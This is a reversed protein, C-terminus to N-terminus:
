IFQLSTWTATTIKKALVKKNKNPPGRIRRHAFLATRSDTAETEVM